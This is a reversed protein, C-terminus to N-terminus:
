SPIQDGAVGARPLRLLRDSSYRLPLRGRASWGCRGSAIDPQRQIQSQTNFGPRRDAVTFRDRCVVAPSRRNGSAHSASQNGAAGHCGKDAAAGLGPPDAGGTGAADALYRYHVHGSQYAQLRSSTVPSPACRRHARTGLRGEYGPRTAPPRSNTSATPISGVDALGVSCSRRAHGPRNIEDRAVRRAPFVRFWSRFTKASGARLVGYGRDQSRTGRTRICLCM